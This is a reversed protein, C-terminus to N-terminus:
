FVLFVGNGLILPFPYEGLDEHVALRVEVDLNSSLNRLALVNGKDNAPADRADLYNKRKNM